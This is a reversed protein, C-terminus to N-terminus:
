LYINVLLSPVAFVLFLFALKASLLAGPPIPRTRWFARDGVTPDAQVVAVSLIFQIVVPIIQGVFLSSFGGAFPIVAWYWGLTELLSFVVSLTALVWFHRLDKRIIHLTVSM